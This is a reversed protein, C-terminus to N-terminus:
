LSLLNTCCRLLLCKVVRCINEQCFDLCVVKLRVLLGFYIEMGNRDSHIFYKSGTYRLIIYIYIYIKKYRLKYANM